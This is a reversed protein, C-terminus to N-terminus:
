INKGAGPLRPMRSWPTVKYLTTWQAWYVEGNPGAAMLTLPYYPIPNKLPIPTGKDPDFFTSITGDPDVQLIRGEDSLFIRGGADVAFANVKCPPATPATTRGACGNHPGTGCTGDDPTVPLAPTALSCDGGHTELRATRGDPLIRYMGHNNSAVVVGGDPHAAMAGLQMPFANNAAGDPVPLLLLEGGRSVKYPGDQALMYLAGTKDVTIPMMGGGMNRSAMATDAHVMASVKGDPGIRKVRASAFCGFGPGSADLAYLNGAGDAALTTPSELSRHRSPNSEQEDRDTLRNRQGPKSVAYVDDERITTIYVTGRADVTMGHIVHEGDVMVEVTPAQALRERQQAENAYRQQRPFHYAAAAVGAVVVALSLLISRRAGTDAQM